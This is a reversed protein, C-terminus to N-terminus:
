IFKYLHQVHLLLQEFGICEISADDDHLHQQDGEEDDSLPELVLDEDRRFISQITVGLYSCNFSYLFCLIKKNILNSSTDIFIDLSHSSNMEIVHLVDEGEQHQAEEVHEGVGGVGGREEDVSEESSSADSVGDGVDEDNRLRGSGEGEKDVM